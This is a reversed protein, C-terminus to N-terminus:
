GGAAHRERISGTGDDRACTAAEAARQAELEGTAAATHDGGVDVERRRLQGRRRDTVGAALGVRDGAVDSLQRLDLAQHLLRARGEAAGVQHDVVRAHRGGARHRLDRHGVPVPDDADVQHAPAVATAGEDRV